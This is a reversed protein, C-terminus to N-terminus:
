HEWEEEPQVEDQEMLRYMSISQECFTLLMPIDNTATEWVLDIDIAGYNHAFLNRM